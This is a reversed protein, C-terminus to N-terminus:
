GARSDPPAQEEAVGEHVPRSVPGNHLFATLRPYLDRVPKHTHWRSLTRSLDRVDRRIVASGVLDARDLLDGALACAHDVEGSAAHALVRRLQYRGAAHRYSKPIFAVERDLIATADRLRGLDHMCWGTVGGPVSSGFPPVPLGGLQAGDDAELAIRAKDLAWQCDDYAGMLALAQAERLAAFGRIRPRIRSDRQAHQALLVSRIANDEHLAIEAQRAHAFADLDPIGAQVAIRTTLSTWWQAGRNDGCQQALWGAYEAYRGALILLRERATKPAKGALNRLVHVQAIVTPMAASAGVIETLRVCEHFLSRFIACTAEDTVAASIDRYPISFGLAGDMTPVSRWGAPVFHNMGDNSLTLTWVDDSDPGPASGACASGAHPVLAALAGDAGLAVDCRRALDVPPTQIGNEIKSLYSKNYHVLTGLGALSLGAALRRRRLETGFVGRINAM